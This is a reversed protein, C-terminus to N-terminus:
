NHMTRSRYHWAKKCITVCSSKIELLHCTKSKKIDLQEILIHHMVHYSSDADEVIHTIQIPRHQLVNDQVTKINKDITPTGSAYQNKCSMRRCKFGQCSCKVIEYSVAFEGITIFVDEHLKTPILSNKYLYKTVAKQEISYM